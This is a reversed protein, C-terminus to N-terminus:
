TYVISSLKNVESNEILKTWFSIIRTQIDIYLPLVGLEGYIMNSPTSRKLNFIYKYFKLQVREIMEINGTGWLECGYLLIPKITKNFLDIQIDVPLDLNRSKKLLAFVAKNAQEVIHKKASVFSGSRGLFIGYYKYENVMELKTNQFSFHVNKSVRGRSFYIIKTKSTNVTLHWERYYDEFVNLTYQLNDKDDSFIVTDDAYLLVLLKLYIYVDDTNIDLEVGSVSRAHLFNELDNLFISFLFPSLNGGQRVGVNCNFFNSSGENTTVKSKINQYM